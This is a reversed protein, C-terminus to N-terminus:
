GKSEPILSLMRMAENAVDNGPNLAVAKELPDKAEENRGESLLVFGLSLWIRQYLPQVESGKKLADVALDGKGIYFYALGLDNYTDADKPDIELVKEYIEIAQKYNRTEFYQDGLGALAQPDAKDVDLEELPVVTNLDEAIMPGPPMTSREATQPAPQQPKYSQKTALSFIFIGAAFVGIIIIIWKKYAEM